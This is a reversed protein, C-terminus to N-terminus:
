SLQYINKMRKAAEAEQGGNQEEGKLSAGSRVVEEYEEEEGCEDINKYTPQESEGSKNGCPLLREILQGIMRFTPRDSPELNWCQTMLQYMQAPAFDPQDMHCGDKIMRYFNTDVAVNPYPSKGLSFIEWLLVGYSWVDSQVTYVCQFISEPSMWKVPLRANGQVIYSDDNRIDRALGFDCIKAVHHDTLLVNRAAVDRHICNRTSLFDLGQAVQYSFRILDSVSLREVHGGSHSLVSQMEQYESCCSIGSDSRHRVDQSTVNSYKTDSNLIAAMFDPTHLRLFNLLDGHCCYETIMLMPGGQTCAGLLNVINDHYGLHSLIKLECMLAEREELHASPKLMKVAVRTIDETGLGYATAEVVKGFAGSGLVAGLRLKDRPFEWKLNYPLRNPDIFTYNNGDCSEIIKWRIEYKPKTKMRCIVLLLLLLLAAMAVVSATVFPQTLVSQGRLLFTDCSRGVSNFSVCEITVDHAAPRPLPLHKTLEERELTTVDDVQDTSINGCTWVLGSCTVWLITPPPFGSSSCTLTDNQVTILSSPARLIRLDFNLSANFFSNALRLTYRGKAERHVRHFLLSSQSRYTDFSQTKQVETPTVWDLNRIPPYAEVAVTLMMDGGELVGVTSSRSVVNPYAADASVNALLEWEDKMSQSSANAHLAMRSDARQQLFVKLFPADLVSLRAAATAHGAENHATCAYRGDHRRTVGVVSLTSNMQLWNSYRRTVTINPAQVHPHTWTVTYVHSPNSTVCTVEFTEGELHFFIRQNVSVHPPHRQRPAVLLDLTKSRFQTGLKWGSCVYRGNFSRHVKHILAGRHPDFTVNMGRPLHQAQRGDQYDSQLTLNTVSPDTLLCRFLFDDGEKVSPTMRPTVFVSSPDSPDKVYLHIQTHAHDLSRNIYSCRYTGTHRPTSRRVELVDRHEPLPRFATTSWRVSANGNCSLSFASGATLVVESGNLLLDSDLHIFPPCFDGGASTVEQEEAREADRAADGHLEMSVPTIFVGHSPGAEELDVTMKPSPSRSMDTSGEALTPVLVSPVVAPHKRTLFADMLRTYMKRYDESLMLDLSAVLSSFLPRSGPCESWCAKMMGYINSNAQQPRTLRHGTKLASYFEQTTTLDAYPSEGLSFIEWLLIGYSWVDSQSSYTNQFISEPSMWKLPLLTHGRTVYNEDKLLDRALGLDGVKALGEECVLVNRAALDRHVCNRSSLFDMARAVQYSFSLLDKPELVASDSLFLPSAEQQGALRHVNDHVDILEEQQNMDMYGGDAEREAHTDNHVFAHRHRQLYTRLDGHCCFETIVYLPGATTCAGLLNVINLHPGLHCLVKLESLLSQHAGRNAKVMKVSVKTLTQSTLLGPVTAEMVCGFAGSGLVQGLVVNERPIEWSASYPLLAPDLYTRDQGDPSVSGILRWGVQYGPKKRWLIILIILFIIAIVVLILIPALMAVQSLLSASVLRLDRARRGASNSAECRVAFFSAPTQLTLVSRVQTLGEDAMVTISEQLVVGESAASQSRWSGTGNACGDASHCTFWTVSPPPAGESVCLMAQSSSETLLTIKPPAKVELHFVVEDRADQNSATVTYCGTQNLRVPRVTLTSVYSSGAVHTISVSSTETVVGQKDKTWVITPPPHAEVLVRLEVTHYILCSMNTDHSPRVLVYGGDLVTVTMNKEVTRGQLTEQVSCAYVGSDSQRAAPISVFSRIENPLFETLPEIEKKRPFDWSFYVMETDQVTCNVTLPEGRKLVTSSAILDVQMEKAVVISFVYYVQSQTQESGNSAVCVYSSDNLHGTFGHAPEYKMGPLPITDGREYLSVNLLPDSVVCPITDEEKEKMVVGPGLPVFWEDPGRGPIFIDMQRIQNSSSEECAYRGSNRWSANSLQLVSRSKQYDVVIGDDHFDQRPLRWSVQGWGSCVVTFNSHPSLLVQSALPLMELTVGGEPHLLLMGFLFHLLTLSGTQRTVSVLMALSHSLSPKTTQQQTHAHEHSQSCTLMSALRLAKPLCSTPTSFHSSHLCRFAM